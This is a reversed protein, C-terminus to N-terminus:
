QGSTPVCDAVPFCQSTTGAGSASCIWTSDPECIIPSSYAATIACGIAIATLLLLAMYFNILKM